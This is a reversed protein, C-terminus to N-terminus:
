FARECLLGMGTADLMQMVQQQVEPVDADGLEALVGRAMERFLQDNETVLYHVMIKVYHSRDHCSYDDPVGEVPDGSVMRESYYEDCHCALERIYAFSYKKRAM